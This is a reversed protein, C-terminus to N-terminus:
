GCRRSNRCERSLCVCFRREPFASLFVRLATTTPEAWGDCTDSAQVRVDKDRGTDSFLADRLAMVQKEGPKFRVMQTSAMEAV